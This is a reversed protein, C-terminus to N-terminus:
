GEDNLKQDELADIMGIITNLPTKLEHSITAIM